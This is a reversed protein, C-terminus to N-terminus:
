ALSEANAKSPPEPRSVINAYGCPAVLVANELVRQFPLGRARSTRHNFRFTFEELYSDLHKPEFRGHHTGLLWRKFFSAVRHVRPLLEEEGVSNGPIAEHTYGKKPLGLYGKWGDTIIKSKQQIHGQVFAELTKASADPIRQMRIRGIKKGDREAAIAVLQKGGAGRGRKGPKPGGVFTEDVEAEGSLLERGPRIMTHRIKHLLMWATEYSGIGLIRQLSLASVGTKESTVRWIANFWALLSVHSDQFM